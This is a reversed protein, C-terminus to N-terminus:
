VACELTTQSLADSLERRAADRLLSCFPETHLPAMNLHILAVLLRLRAPDRGIKTAFELADRELQAANECSPVWLRANGAEIAYSMEGRKIRAYDMRIGGIMKALDYDLDGAHIWGAFDQRWDLLTFTGDPKALVNDFQLDGHFIVPKGEASLRSWDIRDLLDRVGPLQTGDVRAPECHLVGLDELMRVRDLTKHKYFRECASTFEDRDVSVPHWLHESLWALLGALSERDVSQYLTTGEVFEYAVFGESADLMPPFVADVSRARDNRGRAVGPDNFMKIVRKNLIYLAEGPKSFDFSTRRTLEARYLSEEGIDTWSIPYAHLMANRVLQALGASIQEEGAIENSHELGSWFCATSEIRMIGTFARHVANSVRRKDAISLVQEAHIEFNCYRDSTHEPVEAVGVWNGAHDFKTDPALVADCPAFYFPTNEGIAQRCCLLSRGPGSGPGTWPDVDVFAFEINPHALELYGRVQQAKHGLGIVFRNHDGFTEILLSIAAREALPLLAKNMWSLSDGMRTGQGATLICITDRRSM